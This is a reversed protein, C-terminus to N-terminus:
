GWYCRVGCIVRWRWCCTLRWYCYWRCGRKQRSGEKNTDELLWYSQAMSCFEYVAEGTTYRLVLPHITSNTLIVMNDQLGEPSDPLGNEKVEEIAKYASDFDLKDSRKAIPSVLCTDKGEQHEKIAMFGNKIDELAVTDRGGETRRYKITVTQKKPDVNVEDTEERNNVKVNIDFKQPEQKKDVSGRTFHFSLVVTVAIVITCAIATGVIAATKKRDRVVVPPVQSVYAPPNVTTVTEM